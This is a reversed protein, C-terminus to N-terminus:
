VLFSQFAFSAAPGGLKRLKVVDKRAHEGFLRILLTSFWDPVFIPSFFVRYGDTGQDRRVVSM